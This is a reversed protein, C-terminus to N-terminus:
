AGGSLMLALAKYFRKKITNFKVHDVESIKKFGHLVPNDHQSQTLMALTANENQGIHHLEFSIGHEDLPALGQLMRDLNTRGM